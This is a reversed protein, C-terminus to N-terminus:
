IDLCRDSSNSKHTVLGLKADQDSVVLFANMGSEAAIQLPPLTYDRQQDPDPRAKRM